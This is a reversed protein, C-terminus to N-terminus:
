EAVHATQIPAHHETATADSAAIQESDKKPAPKTTPKHHKKAVTTTKSAPKGSKASKTTSAPKASHV